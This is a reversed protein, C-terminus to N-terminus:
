WLTPNWESIEAKLLAVGANDLTFAEEAISIRGRDELTAGWKIWQPVSTKSPSDEVSLLLVRGTSLAQNEPLWLGKAKALALFRTLTSKRAGPDGGIMTLEGKPIYPEWLWEVDEPEIDAASVTKIRRQPKTIFSVNGAEPELTTGELNSETMGDGKTQWAGAPLFTAHIPNQLNPVFGFACLSLLALQRV